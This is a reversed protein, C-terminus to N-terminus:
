LLSERRAREAQRLELQRALEMVSLSDDMDDIELLRPREVVRREMPRFLRRRQSVTGDAFEQVGPRVRNEFLSSHPPSSYVSAPGGLHIRNPFRPPSSSAPAKTRLQLLLPSPGDDESSDDDEEDEDDIRYGEGNFSKRRQGSGLQQEGSNPARFSTEEDRRQSVSPRRRIASMRSALKPVHLMSKMEVEDAHLVDESSGPEFFSIHFKEFMYHRLGSFLLCVYLILVLSEIVVIVPTTIAAVDTTSTGTTKVLTTLNICIYTGVTGFADAAFHLTKRLPRVYVLLSIYAILIWSSVQADIPYNTLVIVSVVAGKRLLIIINWWWSNSKYGDLFFALYQVRRAPDAALFRSVLTFAIPVGLLVTLCVGFAINAVAINEASDCQISVDAVLVRVSYAGYDISRCNWLQTSYLIVAQYLFTWGVLASTIAIQTTNLPVPPRLLKGPIVRLRLANPYLFIVSRAIFASIPIEALLLLQLLYKSRISLELQSLLCAGFTTDLIQVGALANISDIATRFYGPYDTDLLSFISLLQFQQVLLQLITLSVNSARTNQVAFVVILSLLVTIGALLLVVLVVTWSHPPCATCVGRIDNGYGEVCRQCLPGTYPHSCAGPAGGPCSEPRQCQYVQRSASSSRWFNPLVTMNEGDCTCDQLCKSCRREGTVQYYGPECRGVISTSNVGLIEPRGVVSFGLYYSAGFTARVVIGSFGARGNFFRRTVLASQNKQPSSLPSIAQHMALEPSLVEHIIVGVILESLGVDSSGTLVNGAVDVCSVAPESASPDLGAEDVTPGPQSVVFLAFPLGPLVTIRVVPESALHALGAPLVLRYQIPPVVSSTALPTSVYAADFLVVGNEAVAQLSGLLRPMLAWNYLTTSANPPNTSNTQQDPKDLPALVMAYPTTDFSSVNNGQIDEVIAVITLYSQLTSRVTLTSPSFRAHHAVGVVIFPANTTSFVYGDLSVSVAWDPPSGATVNPVECVCASSSMFKGLSYRVFASAGSRSPQELHSLPAFRCSLEATDIFNTGFVTIRQNGYFGSSRAAIRGPMAQSVLPSQIRAVQVAVSDATFVCDLTLSACSLSVSVFNFRECVTTIEEAPTTCLLHTGNIITAPVVRSWGDKDSGHFQCAASSQPIKRFGSGSVTVVTGGAYDANTPRVSSVDWMLLRMLALGNMDSILAFLITAASPRMDAVLGSYSIGQLGILALDSAAASPLSSPVLTSLSFKIFNCEHSGGSATATLCASLFAVMSVLDVQGATVEFRASLTTAIPNLPQRLLKLSQKRAVAVLLDHDGTMALIAAAGGDIVNHIMRCLIPDVSYTSQFELAPTQIMPTVLQEDPECESAGSFPFFVILCSRMTTTTDYTNGYAAVGRWSPLNTLGIISAANPITIHRSNRLTFNNDNRSADFVIRSCQFSFPERYKEIAVVSFCISACRFDFVSGVFYTSPDIAIEGFKTLPPADRLGGPRQSRQFSWLTINTCNAGPPVAIIGYYSVLLIDHMPGCHTLSWAPTIPSYSIASPNAIYVSGFVDGVYYLYGYVDDIVMKSLGTPYDETLLTLPAIQSTTVARQTCNEGFYGTECMECQSGSFFGLDQSRFCSCAGSTRSCTGRLPGVTAGEVIRCSCPQSCAVGWFYISCSLCDPGDYFQNCVCQGSIPDCESNARVQRCGSNSCNCTRGVFPTNCACTGNTRLCYGNVCLPCAASCGAGGFGEKCVCETGNTAGNRCEVSCSSGSKGPVCSSCNTAISWNTHCTCTGAVSCAGHGYCPPSGALVGPCSVNCSLGSFGVACLCVGNYECTGHGGCQVREQDEPCTANCLSVNCLPGCFGLDCQCRATASLNSFICLGRSCPPCPVACRPGTYNAQCSNCSPGAWFGVSANSYCPKCVAISVNTTVNTSVNCSGHGSCAGAAPYEASTPCRLSCDPGTFNAFCECRGSAICTGNNSCPADPPGPCPAQGCQGPACVTCLGTASSNTYGVDCQDCTKGTWGTLCVCAGVSDCRGGDRSCQCETTCDAGFFGPACSLCNTVPDWYGLVRDRYCLCSGDGSTGANCSGHGGCSV